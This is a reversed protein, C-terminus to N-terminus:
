KKQGQLSQMKLSAIVSTLKENAKELPIDGIEFAEGFRVTLNKSRFKYEGTIAFPVIKAKTKQAMSVAGFKFPLLFQDTRNRTGEPFIGIAGGNRLYEIAQEKAATDKISRNVPICGVWKFFWAFPGDFYEKKAMYRLYRKTSIIPLCQDYLHMHNGCVIIAGEKPINEKGIVKPCYYFKFIPGLIFKSLKYGFPTKEKKM